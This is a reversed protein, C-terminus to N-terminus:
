KKMIGQLHKLEFYNLTERFHKLYTEKANNTTQTEHVYQLILTFILMQPIM